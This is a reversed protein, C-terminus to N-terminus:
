NSIEAIMKRTLIGASTKLRYYYMGKYGSLDFVERNEGAPYERKLLLVVRGNMDVIEWEVMSAEPLCFSIMTQGAFPNPINQDLRFAGAAETREEFLPQQVAPISVAPIYVWFAGRNANDAPGGILATTGNASVSVSTAQKAAGAADSGKLKAGQQTWAGGTKRFIWMAGKNSDDGFGGSVLTGGDASLSVSAGQRSAASYNTGVLRAQQTWAGGTYAYVWAAGILSNDASGGVLATRGDASLSVSYGQWAQASGGTGVLKGGQQSWVCGDRVYVWAAGQRNNDQYGGWIIVKGNANLGISGGQRANGVAGAGVVKDGLQLFQDGERGFTWLAGAYLNDAIGGSAVTSGDGSVAVSTGQQAAGVAGSGALKGGTQTWTAGNRTFVWVAGRNNDDAPGGSVVTNGDSSVAVSSGQRSAGTYGTGVLKAQQTWASGTRVYILAAGTNSNDGPVGVVATNGDASTALSTGQLGNTTSATLKAGQQFYPHPTPNVTFSSAATATATSTTVSVNGTSAGPMVMLRASTATKSIIVADVGGISASVLHDLSTGTVSVITGPNGAGPTFSTIAPTINNVQVSGCPSILTIDQIAPAPLAVSLQTSSLITLNTGPIGNFLVDTVESMNQGTITVLTGVNGSTPTLSSVAPKRRVFVTYSATATCGQNDTTTVTYTTTCSPYEVITGTVAGQSWSYSVFQSATKLLAGSGACIQGDDPLAGSNEQSNVVPSQGGSQVTASSTITCGNADTVTVTYSGAVLGSLDETTAMNNWNYTYSTIGGGATLNVSGSATGTCDPTGVASATLADPSLINTIATRTCGNFDTVTVTYTGASLGSATFGNQAPSTSWLCFFSGAGGSASVTASGNTAGFCGINTQSSINVSIAAPETITASATETCGNADTATVTYTGAALSTASAGVSPSSWAYTYPSTGGSAVSTASGNSVGNCSAATTSGVTVNLAPPASITVSASGLCGNSDTITVTYTGARLGTITATTRAPSTSWAYTLSGAGNSSFATASGNAGGFCSVNTYSSVTVNVPCVGISASATAPSEYYGGAGGGFQASVRFGALLQLVALCTTILRTNKNKMVRM